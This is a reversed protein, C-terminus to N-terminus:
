LPKKKRTIKRICMRKNLMFYSPFSYNYIFSWSITKSTKFFANENIYNSYVKLMSSSKKKLWNQSHLSIESALYLYWCNLSVNFFPTRLKQWDQVNLIHLVSRIELIIFFVYCWSASDHQQTSFPFSLTTAERRSNRTVLM